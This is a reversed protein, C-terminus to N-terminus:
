ITSFSKTTMTTSSRNISSSASAQPIAEQPEEQVGHFTGRSFTKEPQSLSMVVDSFQWTYLYMDTIFLPSPRVVITMAMMDPLPPTM